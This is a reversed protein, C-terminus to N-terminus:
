SFAEKVLEEMIVENYIVKRVPAFSQMGKPYNARESPEMDKKKPDPPETYSDPGHITWYSYTGYELYIAYSKTNEIRLVGNNVASSWGQLYDGGKDAILEMDRINQKIRNIILEGLIKLRIDRVEDSMPGVNIKLRIDM